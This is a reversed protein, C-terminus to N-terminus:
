PLGKWRRLGWEGALLSLALLLLWPTHWLPTSEIRTVPMERYPLRAVLEDLQDIPVLEGGSLSALQVLGSRNVATERFEDAEPNSAWGVAAFREPEDRGGTVRVRATYPGAQRPVYDTEFLGPQTLGPEATLEINQGDPTEIAVRVNANDQPQYEKDRVRVGIRIAPIQGLEIRDTSVEIPEPVDGTLHRVLQRWFRPPDDPTDDDRKLAWRWLDGALLASMRGRGYNHTVVAPVRLGERDEVEALVSAGPKVDPHPNVIRLSVLTEFRKRELDETERLRMWPELWGERTLHWNLPPVLRQTPRDLYLPLADKLPTRQWDGHRFTDRGGLMMVGGGRESIFRDLLTLQDHTFFDAEVDDLIIADYEYLDAKRTPFGDSLEQEDRLNLRVLVPEEYSETEEDPDTRFGRFLPNSSEGARGRFDFRTEKRAIRILSVLHLRKDEELARNLFKFEWNPRGGVYLVRFVRTGRDVTILRENNALTAERTAEPRDFIGEEDEAFIRLRYFQVGPRPPTLQFRATLSRAEAGRPSEATLPLLVRQEREPPKRDAEHDPEKELPEGASGPETGRDPHTPALTAVVHGRFDGRVAITALVTVPADEFATQNVSVNQISLDPAPEAEPLMVPYIPVSRNWSEPTIEDTAVGDSMLLVAALPQKEFRRNLNALASGLRTDPSDFTVSNFGDVQKLSDGFTYQRVDFDQKLRTQWASDPDNLLAAFTEGRSQPMRGSEEANTGIRMSASRDLLLLVINEGPKGRSRNLMPNLLCFVLLFVAGAKLLLLGAKWRASQEWRAYVSLLILLFVFALGVAMWLWDPNGLVLSDGARSALVMRGRAAGEGGPCTGDGLGLVHVLLTAWRQPSLIGIM